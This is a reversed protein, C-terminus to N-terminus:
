CLGEEKLYNFLKKRSRFLSTKVKAQSFGSRQAILSIPAFHFYRSVFINRGADDLTSLFRDIYEALEKAEIISEPCDGGSLSGDLEELAPTYEGGGRKLAKGARLMDVSINRIIRAIFASLNEPWSPPMSLWLKMYGDSVAEECDRTDALINRAISRCYPGYKGDTEPIAQEDRQWYLEIIHEDTM